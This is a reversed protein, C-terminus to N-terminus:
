APNSVAALEPPLRSAPTTTSRGSPRSQCPRFPIRLRNGIWNSSVAVGAASCAPSSKVRGSSGSAGGEAGLVGLSGNAAIGGSPTFDSLCHFHTASFQFAGVVLTTYSPNGVGCSEFDVIQADALPALSSLAALCALSLRM